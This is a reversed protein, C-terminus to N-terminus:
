DIVGALKYPEHAPWRRDSFVEEEFLGRLFELDKRELRVQRLSMTRDSTVSIRGEPGKLFARRWFRVIDSPCSKSDEYSDEFVVERIGAQYALKLCVPCPELTTYLTAGNINIGQKGAFVIANMEAHVSVCYLRDGHQNRACVGVEFCDLMGSPAGVYGTSLVQKDKVIVAGVKRKACTSRSAVVRALALFYKDWDLRKRQM